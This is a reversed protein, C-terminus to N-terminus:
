TGLTTDHPLDTDADSSLRRVEVLELGLGHLQRLLGHLAAQDRLTGRLVTQPAEVFAHLDGADELLEAPVTGRVRIEFLRSTM